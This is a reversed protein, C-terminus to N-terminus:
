KPIMGPVVYAQLCALLGILAALLISHWFSSHLVKGEEGVLGVTTVGVAINQPSIMKGMVAGSSNTAAMLVPNLQLQHAAAVQLNGFLVNSSTDSGSLFCAVWGLFSSVFPFAPGVLALAAGLTYAMGSYNYLYALGVIFLVALGPVRLQRLTKWGSVLATRPSVRFLLAALITTVLVATGSTLPQFGFIAAYPKHYLTILVGNHLSPIPVLLQGLAPIRFYSWLVIVVSLLTWPLWGAVVERLTLPTSAAAGLPAGPANALAARSAPPASKPSWTRLLLVTAVISVLSSAVDTAYPGWFNSVAFQTAAFSCGAVLAVPWCRKLGAFGGVLLILYAPLMVSLLPLQRGIAISLKMIDLGTVGALAVIPIGVAGFAVPVTNALLSALVAMRPQFGLAVLLCATIAVPAGFGANGELLAGFCFAVLTAQICPDGSARDHIWRRLLEFLGVDITLNYLWLANFVLWLISWAAFAFGYLLSWSALSIPMRWIFAALLIATILGCASALLSGKRLVGMLLLVVLLPITAVLASAPLWHLPNLPQPWIVIAASLFTSM